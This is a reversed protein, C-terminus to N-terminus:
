KKNEKDNKKATARFRKDYQMQMKNISEVEDETLLGEAIAITGLKVRVSMQQAIAKLYDEQSLIEKDVLYKGFLQSFM